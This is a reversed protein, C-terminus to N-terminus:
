KSMIEQFKECNVSIDNKFVASGAVIVNAGADLVMQLNDLNVGGDIEIDINLDIATYIKVIQLHYQVRASIHDHCSRSNELIVNTNIAFFELFCHVFLGFTCPPVSLSVGDPTSFIVSLFVLSLM